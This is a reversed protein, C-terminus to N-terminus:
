KANMATTASNNCGGLTVNTSDSCTPYYPPKLVPEIVPINNLREQIIVCDCKRDFKECWGCPLKYKCEM